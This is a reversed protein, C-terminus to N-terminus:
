QATSLASAQWNTRLYGAFFNFIFTIKLSIFYQERGLESLIDFLLLVVSKVALPFLYFPLRSPHSFSAAKPTGLPRMFHPLAWLCGVQDRSRISEPIDLLSDM